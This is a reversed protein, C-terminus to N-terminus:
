GFTPITSEQNVTRIYNSEILKQPPKGWDSDQLLNSKAPHGKPHNAQISRYEFHNEGSLVEKVKDIEEVVNPIEKISLTSECILNHM